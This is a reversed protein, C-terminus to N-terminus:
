KKINEKEEVEKEIAQHMLRKYLPDIDNAQM